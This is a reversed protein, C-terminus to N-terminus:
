IRTASLSIYTKGTMHTSMWIMSGPITAYEHPTPPSPPLFFMYKCYTTTQSSKIFSIQMSTSVNAILQKRRRTTTRNM